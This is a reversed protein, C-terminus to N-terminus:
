NNANFVHYMYFLIFPKYVSYLCIQSFSSCKQIYGEPTETVLMEMQTKYKIVGLKM